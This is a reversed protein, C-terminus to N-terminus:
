CHEEEVQMEVVIVILRARALSRVKGPENCWKARMFHHLTTSYVLFSALQMGLESDGPFGM